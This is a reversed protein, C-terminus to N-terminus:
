EAKKVKDLKELYEIADNFTDVPVIKMDTDIKAGAQVAEKYNSNAAGQQNPAFFVEAGEKDAAM